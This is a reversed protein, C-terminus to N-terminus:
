GWEERRTPLDAPAPGLPFGGEPIGKRLALLKLERSVAEIAAARTDPQRIGTRKRKVRHAKRPGRFLIAAQKAPLDLSFPDYFVVGPGRPSPPGGPSEAGTM